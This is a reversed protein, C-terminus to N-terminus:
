TTKKGTEVQPQEYSWWLSKPMLGAAVLAIQSLVFLSLILLVGETFGYSHLGIGLQNVGFWSWATVINGGISLAALGRDKVLGGWRAHLILANWMVIILAGNEKPDWGWFRGWSDDAWLGGLVTGFFSFFIAFCVTGYVLTMLIKSVTWDRYVRYPLVPTFLGAIIYAVGAAGAIFTTAYGLTICVVHTALWFQTDLVAQMVGLTDGDGALGFQAIALTLFGAASSLVNGIGIRFLLEAVLGIVVGAWGIFVASSYLNTVPPRGSIIIREVLAWTHLGAALVILLLAARNLPRFWGFPAAAWSLGILAFGGLYLLWSKFIPELYNYYAERKTTSADGEYAMFEEALLKEYAAVQANFLEVDGDRYALLINGLARAAPDPPTKLASEFGTMELARPISWELKPLKDSSYYQKAFAELNQRMAADIDRLRKKAFKEVDPEPLTSHSSRIIEKTLDLEVAALNRELVKPSDAEKVLAQALEEVTEVKHAEATEYLWVPLYDASLPKWTEDRPGVAAALLIRGAPTQPQGKMSTPVAFPVTSEKLGRARLPMNWAYEARQYPDDKPLDFASKLAHYLEVKHALDILKRQHNTLQAKDTAALRRAQQVQDDFEPLRSEFEKLSYRFGSRASLGLTQLVEFNSIRFVKYNDADSSGSIVDLLWRIAKHKKGFQDRFTEYGSLVRLSDRALSDMPKARGGFVVPLKGFEYLQMESTAPKPPSVRSGVYLAGLLFIAVPIGWAVWPSIGSSAGLPPPAEAEVEMQRRDKRLRQAKGLQAAVGKTDAPLEPAASPAPSKEAVSIRNLFRVLTVLFHALMGVVVIMCAVYPIMWGRNKVIQLTTIETDGIKNYQSQYFTWGAYRMPNNMWIRQNKATYNRQEDIFNVYSSYDRPTSTGLYDNKEVNKLFIAYDKYIRKFRLYVSYTKGGAEVTQPIEANLMLRQIDSLHQSLLYTGLSKSSGKLSFKVYAGAINGGTGEAASVPRLSELKYELGLGTTATGSKGPELRVLDSNKFFEVIRVDFPLREDSIVGNRVLASLKGNYSVPIAVVNEQQPHSDDVIALEVAQSSISYTGTEGEKIMMQEEVAHYGVFLENFMMLAIGAHLLVIGARKKFALLCGVVLILAAITGQTLQWSIRLAEDGPKWHPNVIWLYSLLAALIAECAVLVILSLMRKRDYSIMTTVTKGLGLLFLGALSVKCINWFTTWSFPPEGQLGESDHGWYIVLGAVVIGLQIVALGAFLRPGRGQVTFRVAHAALLNLFMALGILLGGPFIFGSKAVTLAGLIPGLIVIGLACRYRWERSHIGATCALAPIAGLLLTIMGVNIGAKVGDLALTPLFAAAFVVAGSGLWYLPDRWHNAILCAAATMLAIGGIVNGVYLGANWPDIAGFWAKPFFVEAGVWAFGLNTPTFPVRFYDDIVEWMDLKDQALTGVLVLFIGMALLTVTIKLSAAPQLFRKVIPWAGAQDAALQEVPRVRSASKRVAGHSM